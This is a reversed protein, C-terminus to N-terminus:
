SAGHGDMFRDFSRVHSLPADNIVSPTAAWKRNMGWGFNAILWQGPLPHVGRDLTVVYTKYSKAYVYMSSCPYISSYYKLM